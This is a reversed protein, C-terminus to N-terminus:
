NDPYRNVELNEGGSEIIVSCNEEGLGDILRKILIHNDPAPIYKLLVVVVPAILTDFWEPKKPTLEPGWRVPGIFEVQNPFRPTGLEMSLIGLALYEEGQLMQRTFAQDLPALGGAKRLSNVAKDWKKLGWHHFYRIVRTRLGPSAIGRGTYPIGGDPELMGPNIGLVSWGVGQQESAIAAGFDLGGVLVYDPAEQDLISRYGTINSKAKQLIGEYLTEFEEGYPNPEPGNESFRAAINVVNEDTVVTEQQGTSFLIRHGRSYFEKMFPVMPFVHNPEPINCFLITAM